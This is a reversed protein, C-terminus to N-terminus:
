LTEHRQTAGILLGAGTVSGHAIAVPDQGELKGVSKTGGSDNLTLVRDSGSRNRIWWEMAPQTYSRTAVAGPETDVM